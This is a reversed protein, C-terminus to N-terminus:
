EYPPLDQVAAKMLAVESQMRHHVTAFDTTDVFPHWAGPIIGMGTLVAQWSSRKFLSGGDVQLQARTEFLEVKSALGDPIPLSQCRRWFGTDTRNGALYHLIIFDRIEEFEVRMKRNYEDALVPWDHVGEDLNPFMELMNEVGRIALHIATSELPELFGGALGVAICNKKWLQERMGNRFPVFYPEQLPKGEVSELL